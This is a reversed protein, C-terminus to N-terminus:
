LLFNFLKFNMSYVNFVSFVFNCFYNGSNYKLKQLRVNDSTMKVPQNSNCMNRMKEMLNQCEKMYYDREDKLHDLSM